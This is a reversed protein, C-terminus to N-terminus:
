SNINFMSLYDQSVGWVKKAIELDIIEIAYESVLNDDSFGNIQVAFLPIGLPRFINFLIGIFVSCVIIIITQKIFNKM